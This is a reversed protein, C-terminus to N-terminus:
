RILREWYDFSSLPLQSTVDILSSMDAVVKGGSNISNAFDKVASVIKDEMIWSEQM